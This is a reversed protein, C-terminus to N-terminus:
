GSFVGFYYLAGNVSVAPIFWILATRSQRFRVPDRTQRQLFLMSLFTAGCVVYMVAKGEPTGGPVVATAGMGVTVLLIVLWAFSRTRLVEDRELAEISSGITTGTTLPKAVDTVPPKDVKTPASTDLRGTVDLVSTDENSGGM